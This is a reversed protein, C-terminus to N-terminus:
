ILSDMNILETFQNVRIEILFNETYELNLIECIIPIFKM